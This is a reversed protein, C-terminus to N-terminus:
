QQTYTNSTGCRFRSEFVAYLTNRSIADRATDGIRVAVMSQAPFGPGNPTFTMEDRTASWSFVGEVAPVTSFAREVSKTDMPKSFHIVIGAAPSVEATDHGPSIETVVPDLPRFESEAVFIKVATGPM